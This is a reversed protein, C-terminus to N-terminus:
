TKQGNEAHIHNKQDMQSTLRIKEYQRGMRLRYTTTRSDQDIWSTLRVREYQRGMRLIYTITKLGYTFSVQSKV